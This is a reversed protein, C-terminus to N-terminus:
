ADVAVKFGDFPMHKANVQDIWSFSTWKGLKV